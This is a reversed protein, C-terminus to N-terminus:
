GRDLDRALRYLSGKLFQAPLVGADGLPEKLAALHAAEDIHIEIILVDAIEAVEGRRDLVAVLHADDGRHGSASIASSVPRSTGSPAATKGRIGASSPM